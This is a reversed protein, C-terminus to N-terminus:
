LIIAHPIGDNEVLAFPLNEPSQQLSNSMLFSPNLMSAVTILLLPSSFSALCNSLMFNTMKPGTPMKWACLPSGIRWTSCPFLPGTLPAIWVCAPNFLRSLTSFYSGLSQSCFNNKQSKSNNSASPAEKGLSFLKKHMRQVSKFFILPTVRKGLTPALSSTKIKGQSLPPLRLPPVTPPSPLLKLLGLRPPRSQLLSQWSTLIIRLLGGQDRLNVLTYSSNM